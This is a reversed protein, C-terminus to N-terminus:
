FSIRDIDLRDVDPQVTTFCASLAKRALHRGNSRQAPDTGSGGEELYRRSQAPVCGSMTAERECIIGLVEGGLVPGGPGVFGEQAKLLGKLGDGGLGLKEAMEGLPDDDDSEDSAHRLDDTELAICLASLLSM